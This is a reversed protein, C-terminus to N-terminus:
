LLKHRIRQLVYLRYLNPGNWDEKLIEFQIDLLEIAILKDKYKNIVQDITKACVYKTPPLVNIISPIVGPKCQEIPINNKFKILYVNM